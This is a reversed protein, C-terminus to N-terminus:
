SNDRSYSAPIIFVSISIKSLGMSRM